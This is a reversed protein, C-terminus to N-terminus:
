KPRYQAPDLGHEKLLRYFYSRAVNATKAAEGASGKHRRLLEELYNKEFANIARERSTVFDVDGSAPEAGVLREDSGLALVREVVNKLERINGPWRYSRMLAVTSSPIADAYKGQAQCFSRVLEPIDELRERLPPLSM